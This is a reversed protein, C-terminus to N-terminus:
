NVSFALDAGSPRQRALYRGVGGRMAPSTWVTKTGEKQGESWKVVVHVGSEDSRISKIRATMAGAQSRTDHKSTNAIGACIRSASDSDIFVRVQKESLGRRPRTEGYGIGWTFSNTFFNEFDRRM